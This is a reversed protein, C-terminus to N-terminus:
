LQSPIKYLTKFWVVFANAADSDHRFFRARIATGYPRGPEKQWALWTHLIAKIRDVDPFRAGHTKATDTAQEACGILPDREDILTRLFDELKGDTQNDPMLWVGVRSGFKSSEGIFGEPPAQGPADIGVKRLRNSVAKWREQLQEDADLVFGNVCDTSVRVSVELGDLLKEVGYQLEISPFLTPWLKSNIGHRMLLHEISCEDDRGEVHLKSQKPDGAM